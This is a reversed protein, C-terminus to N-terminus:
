KRNKFIITTDMPSKFKLKEWKNPIKNIASQYHKREANDILLFGENKVYQISSEICYPRARGDVCVLDFKKNTKHIYNVYNDYFPGESSQYKGTEQNPIHVIQIKNTLKEPIKSEVLRTWQEDHEVSIINKSRQALWITSSGCGYEFVEFYDKIINEALHEIAGRSYWPEQNTGMYNPTHSDPRGGVSIGSNFMKYAM